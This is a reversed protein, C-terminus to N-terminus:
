INIEVPIENKQVTIIGLKQVGDVVDSFLAFGTSPEIFDPSTIRIFDKMLFIDWNEGSDDSLFYAAHGFDSNAFNHGVGVLSNEDMVSIGLIYAPMEFEKSTSLDTKILNQGEIFYLDNYLNIHYLHSKTGINVFEWNQGLDSSKYLAGDLGTLLFEGDRNETIDTYVNFKLPIKTWSAGGDETRLVVDQGIVFGLEPQSFYVKSPEGGAPLLIEEFTQGGDETKILTYNVGEKELVFATNESIVQLHLLADGANYLETWAKGGNETKWIAGTEEIGYGSQKNHFDIKSFNTELVYFDFSVTYENNGTIVPEEEPSCATLFSFLIFLLSLKNLHMYSNM